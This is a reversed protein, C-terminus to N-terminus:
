DTPTLLFGHMEGNLTGTGSIEGAPDIGTAENLEWGQGSADVLDNLDQMAAGSKAIFAHKDQTGSLYSWGVVTNKATIAAGQSQTGGLTGLDTMRGGVWTFAHAEKDGKTAAIGTAVSGSNIADAESWTGGLTGVPEENGLAIVVGIKKDTGVGDGSDNLGYLATKPDLIKFSDRAYVWGHYQGDDMLANGAVWNRSNIATAQSQVFDTRMKQLDTVKGKAFMVAHTTGDTATAYGSAYGKRNVGTAYSATKKTLGGL